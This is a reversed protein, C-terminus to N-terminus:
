VRCKYFIRIALHQRKSGDDPDDPVSVSAGISVADGPFVNSGALTVVLSSFAPIYEM